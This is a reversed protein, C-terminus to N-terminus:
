PTIVLDDVLMLHGPPGWGDLSIRDIGTPARVTVREERFLGRGTVDYKRGDTREVATTLIRDGAWATVDFRRVIDPGYLSFSVTRPRGSFDLRIVGVELGRDGRFAPALAHLDPGPPLYDRGDLVYPRESDATWSRFSVRLGLEAWEDSVPCPACPAGGDGFTEFDIAVPRGSGPAPVQDHTEPPPELVTTTSRHAPEGVPVATRLTEVQRPARRSDVLAARDGGGSEWRFRFGTQRLARYGLAVLAVVSLVVGLRAVWEGPGRRSSPPPTLGQRDGAEAM